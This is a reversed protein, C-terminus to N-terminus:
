NEELFFFKKLCYQLCFHSVQNMLKIEIKTKQYFQRYKTWKIKKFCM